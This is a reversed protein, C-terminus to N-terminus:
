DYCLKQYDITVQKWGIQSTKKYYIRKANIIGSMELRCQLQKKHPM